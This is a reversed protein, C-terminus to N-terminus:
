FHYEPLLMIILVKKVLVDELQAIILVLTVLKIVLSLQCNETALKM